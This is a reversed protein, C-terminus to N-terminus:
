PGSAEDPPEERTQSTSIAPLAAPKQETGAQVPKGSANAARAVEVSPRFRWSSYALVASALIATIGLVKFVLLWSAEVSGTNSQHSFHIFVGHWVLLYIAYVPLALTTLFVLRALKSPEMGIWPVDWGADKEGLKGSLRRLYIMLYLQICLLVCVGCFTLHQTPIKIGWIEFVDVKAADETLHRGIDEL